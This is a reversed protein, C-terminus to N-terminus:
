RSLAARAASRFVRSTDSGRSTSTEIRYVLVVLWALVLDLAINGLYAATFYYEWVVNTSSIVDGIADQRLYFIPGIGGGSAQLRVNKKYLEATVYDQSFKQPLSDRYLKIPPLFIAIQLVLLVILPYTLRMLITKKNVAIYTRTSWM